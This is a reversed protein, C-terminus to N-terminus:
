PTGDDRRAQLIAQANRALIQLKQEDSCRCGLLRGFQQEMSYFDCDSGWLIRHAGVRDALYEIAGRPALSGCLELFVNPHREAMQLYLDYNRCTSHGLLIFANPARRAVQALQELVLEGGTTHFLVPLRHRDALEWAPAYAPADYPFGNGNHVKFGAFGQRVRLAAEERVFDPDRPFLSAYGLLRGPFARMADLVRDNGWHVDWSICQLHSVLASRVGLRDMVAVISAPDLDPIAHSYRGIHAHMDIAGCDLPRGHLLLDILSM